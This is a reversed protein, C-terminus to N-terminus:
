RELILLQGDDLVLSSKELCGEIGRHREILSIIEHEVEEVLDYYGYWCKRVLDGFVVDASTSRFRNMTLQRVRVPPEVDHFPIHGFRITYICSALAFQESLPGALPPEYNEDM